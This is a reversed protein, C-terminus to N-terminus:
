CEYDEMPLAISPPQWTFKMNFYMISKQKTKRGVICSELQKLYFLLLGITEVNMHM